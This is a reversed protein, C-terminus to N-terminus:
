KGRRSKNEIVNNPLSYILDHKARKWIDAVPIGVFCLMVVDAFLFNIAVFGEILM